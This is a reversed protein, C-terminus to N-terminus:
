KGVLVNYCFIFLLIGGYLVLYYLEGYFVFLELGYLIIVISLVHLLYLTTGDQIANYKCM